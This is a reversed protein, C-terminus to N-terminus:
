QQAVRAEVGSPKTVNIVFPADRQQRTEVYQFELAKPEDTRYSIAVGVAYACNGRRHHASGFIPDAALFPM